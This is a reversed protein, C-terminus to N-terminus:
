PGLIRAGAPISSAGHASYPSGILWGHIVSLSASHMLHGRVIRALRKELEAWDTTNFMKMKSQGLILAVMRIDLEHLNTAFVGSM